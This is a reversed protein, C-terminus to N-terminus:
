SREPADLGHRRMLRYLTSRAVGLRKSAASVNGAVEGLVRRLVSGEVEALATPASADGQAVLAELPLHVARIEGDDRGRADRDAAARAARWWAM